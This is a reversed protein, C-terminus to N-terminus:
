PAAAQTTTVVGATDTNSCLWTSSTGCICITLTNAPIASEAAAGTGGNIAVTTPDNTRLEYGTAGNRLAIVTKPTPTPLVIIKNADDCTVTVFDTGDAITGTGTGDATATRAAATTLSTISAVPGTVGTPGTMGTVGTPGTPGTAGAAGAGTPGTPGVRGQSPLFIAGRAM